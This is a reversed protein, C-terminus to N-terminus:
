IGLKAMIKDLKAEIASLRAEVGKDVGNTASSSPAARQPMAPAAAARPMVPPPSAAKPEPKKWSPAAAPAPAVPLGAVTYLGKDFDYGTVTAPAWAGVEDDDLVLAKCPLAEGYALWDQPERM